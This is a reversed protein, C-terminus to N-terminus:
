LKFEITFDDDGIDYIESKISEQDIELYDATGDFYLSSESELITKETSNKVDGYKTIKANNKSSDLIPDDGNSQIHM